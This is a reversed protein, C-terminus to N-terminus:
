PVPTASPAPTNAGSNKKKRDKGRGFLADIVGGLDRLEAGVARQMLDTSPRNVTGSIHFPLAYQGPEGTAVFNERIGRFLSGRIKENIQLSSNLALRGDLTVSGTASLHLNPSRLVLDDILVEGNALHFKAEAQELDLQTLEEIQLLQGIAALVPFQKVQGDRLAIRGEGTLVDAMNGSADLSGELVGRIVGRPGGAETVIEDAQVGQFAAHVTFPSNEAQTEMSFKGTLKGKAIHASLASLDLEEPDYHVPSRLDSLFVRDRLAIKAIRTEGRISVIDRVSSFFQVGDFLAVNRNQRDLFHFSGDILNVRKVQPGSYKPSQAGSPTESSADATAITPMATPATTNTSPTVDPEAPRLTLPLHWKGRENQPWIVAPKVLAIEKIVLPRWFISRFRVHLRFDQARLFPQGLTPTAQPILIGSLKLGSWPTVSIREIHLPMGLRQSLEQQIRAQTGQSQVYLNVSLLAGVFVVVLATIVWGVVRRVRVVRYVIGM